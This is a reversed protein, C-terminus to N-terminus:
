ISSVTPSTNTSQLEVEPSPCEMEPVNMNLQEMLEQENQGTLSFELSKPNTGFKQGNIRVGILMSPM